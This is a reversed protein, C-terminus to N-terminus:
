VHARGIQRRANLNRVPRDLLATFDFRAAAENLRLLPKLGAARRLAYDLNGRVSLHPFLRADQFVLGVGRLHAPTHVDRAVDDLVRDALAIRGSDLKQLGALASLLLSKGAGSPGFLATVGNLPASFQAALRFAGRRLQIDAHLLGSM